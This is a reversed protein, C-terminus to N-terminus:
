AKPKESAAYAFLGATDLAGLAARRAGQYQSRVASSVPTPVDLDQAMALYYRVDKDMLAIQFQPAYDRKLMKPLKTKTLRCGAAGESLIEVTADKDLGAAEATMAAEVLAATLTASIMNNILKLTAGAGTDGIRKALRGMAAMIPQAKEFGKADGGVLFVLEKGQAQALSGSVPADLYVIGKKAAAAAVEKVMAPSNTSSDLVITGKAASAVVGADGLMVARTAADDAIISVVFDAGKVVAAVSDAVEIGKDAFPKTKAKDRNYVRLKIGTAHLNMAMRSGMAGLGIFAVTTM